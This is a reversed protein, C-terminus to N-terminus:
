HSIAIEKLGEKSPTKMNFYHTFNLRINKQYQLIFNHSLFLLFM